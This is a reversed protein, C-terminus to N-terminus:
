NRKMEKTMMESPFQWKSSEKTNGNHNEAANNARWKKKVIEFENEKLKQARGATPVM